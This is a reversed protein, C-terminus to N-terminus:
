TLDSYTSYDVLLEEGKKIRRTSTFAMNEDAVVNPDESHNLYWAINMDNFNQPCHLVNGHIICFDLYLKQIQEPLNKIHKKQLKMTPIPIALGFVYEDKPINKIAFVGIGHIPSPQLRVFVKHHPRM